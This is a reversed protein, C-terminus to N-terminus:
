FTPRTLVVWSKREAFYGSAEMQAEVEEDKIYKSIYIAVFPGLSKIPAATVRRDRLFSVAEAIRDRDRVRAVHTWTNPPLTSDVGEMKAINRIADPWPVLVTSDLSATKPVTKNKSWEIDQRNVAAMPPVDAPTIKPVTVQASTQETPKSLAVSSSGTEETKPSDATGGSAMPEDARKEKPIVIVRPALVTPYVITPAKAIVQPTKAPSLAEELGSQKAILGVGVAVLVTAAIAYAANGKGAPSESPSTANASKPLLGQALERYMAQYRHRPDNNGGLPTGTLVSQFTSTKRLGVRGPASPYGQTNNSAAESSVAKLAKLREPSLLALLPANPPVLLNTPNWTQVMGAQPDFPVDDAELLVDFFGAYDVEPAAIWGSWREVGSEGTGVTGRHELCFAFPNPLAQQVKGDIGVRSTILVIAGPVPRELVRQPLQSLRAIKRAIYDPMPMAEANGSAALPIEEESSVTRLVTRQATREAVDSLPPHLKYM